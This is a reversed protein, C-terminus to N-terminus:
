AANSRTRLRQLLTWGALVIAGAVIGVLADLLAALLTGALGGGVGAAVGDITQHLPGIGHTLIGGGVLFMAATGAVSLGKM